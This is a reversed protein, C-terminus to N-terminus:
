QNRRYFRYINRGEEKALNLATEAQNIIEQPEVKGEDYVTIGMTASLYIDEHKVTM